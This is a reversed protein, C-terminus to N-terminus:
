KGDRREKAAERLQRAQDADIEKQNPENKIEGIEKELDDIKKGM